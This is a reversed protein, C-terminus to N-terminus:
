LAGDLNLYTHDFAKRYGYLTTRSIDAYSQPLFEGRLAYGGPELFAPLVIRKHSKTYMANNHTDFILKTGIELYPDHVHGSYVIDFGELSNCFKMHKIRSAGHILGIVYTCQRTRKRPDTGLSIKIGAFNQRYRDSVGLTRACNYAPDDDSERVSRYEHNGGIWGLIRGADALPKLLKILLDCQDSPRLVEEYVNTKSDKLGNNIMDGCIVVYGVPDNIVMDLWLKFKKINCEKAGIHLDSIAYIHIYRCSSPFKIIIPQLDDLM